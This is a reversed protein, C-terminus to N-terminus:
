TEKEVKTKFHKLLLKQKIEMQFSNCPRISRLMLLHKRM